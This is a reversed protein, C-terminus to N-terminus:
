PRRRDPDAVLDDVPKGRTIPVDCHHELVVGEIRVLGDELVQREGQLKALEAAGIDLLADRSDRGDEFQVLLEIALRPLKGTALPLSHGHTSREDALWLGEEHVLRERVEVGLQSGLHPRLDSEQVLPDSHGRDVDSVILDFRHREAVADGHHAQALELLDGM